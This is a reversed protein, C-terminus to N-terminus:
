KNDPLRVALRRINLDWGLIVKIEELQVEAWMKKFELFDPMHFPKNKHITQARIHLSLTVCSALRFWNYKDYLVVMITDDIFDDM